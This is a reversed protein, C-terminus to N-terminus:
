GNITVPGGTKLTKNIEIQRQAEAAALQQSNAGTPLVIQKREEPNHAGSGVNLIECEDSCYVFNRGSSNQVMRLTKFWPLDNALKQMANQEELFIVSNKCDPGDCQITKYAVPVIPM